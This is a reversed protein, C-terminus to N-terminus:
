PDPVAGPLLAGRAPRSFRRAHFFWRRRRRLSVFGLFGVLSLLSGTGGTKGLGIRAGGCGKGTDASAATSDTSSDTESALYLSDMTTEDSAQLARKNTECRGTKYYM